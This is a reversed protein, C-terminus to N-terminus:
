SFTWSTVRWFVEGLFYLWGGMAFLVFVLFAFFILSNKARALTGPRGNDKRLETSMLVGVCNIESRMVWVLGPAAAPASGCGLIGAQLALDTCFHV